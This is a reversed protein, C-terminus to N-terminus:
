EGKEYKRRLIRLKIGCYAMLCSYLVFLVGLVITVTKSTREYEAISDYFNPLLICLFIVILPIMRTKFVHNIMDIRSSNDSFIESDVESEAESAAKRFYLWGNCRTFYEWGYDKFIQFYDGGEKDNQYDLRYVVDEPACREFIYFCPIIIKVLKLGKKHQERLWREEEEYDAITFFRIMTKRDSM